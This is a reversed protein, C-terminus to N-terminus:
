QTTGQTLETAFAGVAATAAAAAATSAAASEAMPPEGAAAAAAQEEARRRVEYASLHKYDEARRRDLFEDVSELGALRAEELLFLNRAARELAITEAAEEFAAEEDM